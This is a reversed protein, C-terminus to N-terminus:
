IQGVTKIRAKPHIENQSMVVTSPRFREVISRVYPRALPSTLLVPTEGMMAHREFVQRVRQIFEQLKSPAMSLQRDEGAGGAGVSEVFAQEWDPGLTTGDFEDVVGEDGGGGSGDPDFRIWDFRAMPVSPALDSLAAPGIKPADGFTSLPAPRGVPLFTTGNYSYFATLNEGDSVIRVYYTLPSDAPIGGLQQGTPALLREDDGALARGDDELLVVRATPWLAALARADDRLADARDLAGDVFAYPAPTTM